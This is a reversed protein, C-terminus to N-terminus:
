REVCNLEILYNSFEYVIKQDAGKPLDFSCIIDEPTESVSISCIGMYDNVAKNINDYSYIQKTYSVVLDNKM